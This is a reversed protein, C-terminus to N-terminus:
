EVRRPEPRHSERNPSTFDHRTSGTVYLLSTAHQNHFEPVTPPRSQRHNSSGLSSSSHRTPSIHSLLNDLSILDSNECGMQRPNRTKRLYIKLFTMSRIHEMLPWMSLQLNGRVICM